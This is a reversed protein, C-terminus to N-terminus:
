KDDKLLKEYAQYLKPAEAKMEAANKFSLKAESGGERVRVSIRGDEAVDFEREVPDLARAVHRRAARAGKEAKAAWAEMHREIEEQQKEVQEQMKRVADKAKAAPDVLIHHRIGQGTVHINKYLEYAEPDKKRLEEATKYKRTVAGKAGPKTKRVVIGGDAASEVEVQRGDISRSVKFTSKGGTGGVHVQVNGWAGKPLAKLIAPPLQIGGKPGQFVWGKPEKRLMGSHLKLQDEWQDDPDDEYVYEAKAMDALPKGLVVTAAQKRAKRILTLPVKEGPRHRRIRGVFEDADGVSEGKGLSVIVDYRDLGAKDAPSGKVVNAIMLGKGKLGLHADLAAPVPSIRIGIWGSGAPGALHLKPKPAAKKRAEGPKKAKAPKKAEAIAKPHLRITKVHVKPKGDKGDEATATVTVTVQGDGSVVVNGAKAAKEQRKAEDAFAPAIALGLVLMSVLLKATRM